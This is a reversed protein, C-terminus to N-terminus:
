REMEKTSLYLEVIRPALVLVVLTVVTAIDFLTYHM